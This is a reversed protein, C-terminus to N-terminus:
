FTSICANNALISIRRINYTYILSASTNNLYEDVVFVKKLNIPTTTISELRRGSNFNTRVQIICIM